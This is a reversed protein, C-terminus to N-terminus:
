DRVVDWTDLMYRDNILNPRSMVTGAGCWGAVAGGGDLVAGCEGVGAFRRGSSARCRGREASLRAASGDPAPPYRHAYLFAHLRSELTGDHPPHSLDRRDRFLHEPPIHSNHLPNDPTCPSLKTPNRNPPALPRRPLPDNNTTIDTVLQTSPRRNLTPRRMVKM